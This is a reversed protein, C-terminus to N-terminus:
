CCRTAYVKPFILRINLFLSEGEEMIGLTVKGEKAVKYKPSLNMKPLIVPKVEEGDKYFLEVPKSSNFYALTRFSREGQKATESQASVNAMMLAIMSVVVVIIREIM